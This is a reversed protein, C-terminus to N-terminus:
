PLTELFSAYDKTTGADYILVAPVDYPHYLDLWKLFDNLKKKSVKFLLSVEESKEITNNWAYISMVHPHINVCAVYRLVVAQLALEEAQAATHVTTYVVKIETNFVATM